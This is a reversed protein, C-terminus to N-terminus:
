VNGKIQIEVVDVLGQLEARIRATGGASSTPPYYRIQAIGDFIELELTGSGDPADFSGITASLDIVTADAVPQGDDAFFAQVTIIVPNKTEGATANARDARVDLALFSPSVPGARQDSPINNEDGSCGAGLVLAATTLLRTFRSLTRTM